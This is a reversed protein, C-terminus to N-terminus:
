FTLASDELESFSSSSLYAASLGSFDSFAARLFANFSSFRSFLFNFFSNFNANLDYFLLITLATVV